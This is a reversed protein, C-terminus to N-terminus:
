AEAHPLPSYVDGSEADGNVAVPGGEDADMDKGRCDEVFFDPWADIDGDCISEAYRAYLDDVPAKLDTTAVAGDM